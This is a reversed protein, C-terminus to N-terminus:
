RTEACRHQVPWAFALGGRPGCILTPRLRAPSALAQPSGVAGMLLAGYATSVKTWASGLALGPATLLYSFNGAVQPDAVIMLIAGVLLALMFAALTIARRAM